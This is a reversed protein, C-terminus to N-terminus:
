SEVITRLPTTRPSGAVSRALPPAFRRMESNMVLGPLDTWGAAASGSPEEQTENAGRSTTAGRSADHGSEACLLGTVVRFYQISLCKCRSLRCRHNVPKRAPLTTPPAHNSDKPSAEIRGALRTDAATAPRRRSHWGLAEAHGPSSRSGSMAIAPVGGWTTRSQRSRSRPPM